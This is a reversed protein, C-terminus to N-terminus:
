VWGGGSGGSRGSAPRRKGAQGHHYESSPKRTPKMPECIRIAIGTASSLAPSAGSVVAGSITTSPVSASPTPSNPLAYKKADRTARGRAHCKPRRLVRNQGATPHAARPRTVKKTTLPM